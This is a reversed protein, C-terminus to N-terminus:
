LDSQVLDPGLDNLQSIRKVAGIFKLGRTLSPLVKPYIVVPVLYGDADRVFLERFKNIIPSDGKDFFRMMLKRHVCGISEPMIASIDKGILQDPRYGFMSHVEQNAFEIVGLNRFDTRLIFISCFGNEGFIAQEKEAISDKTRGNNYVSKFTLKQSFALRFIDQAYYENNIIDNLYRSYTLLM